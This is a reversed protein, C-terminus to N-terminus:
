SFAAPVPACVLTHEKRKIPHTEGQHAPRELPNEPAIGEMSRAAAGAVTLAAGAVSDVCHQQSDARCHSHM